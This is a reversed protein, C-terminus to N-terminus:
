YAAVVAGVAACLAQPRYCRRLPRPVPRAAWPGLPWCREALAHPTCCHCHQCPLLSRPRRRSSADAADCCLASRARARPAPAAAVRITVSSSCRLGDATRHAHCAAARGYLLGTPRTPVGSRRVAWQYALTDGPTSQSSYLVNRFTPIYPRGVAPPSRRQV